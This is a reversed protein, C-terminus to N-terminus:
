TMKRRRHVVRCSTLACESTTPVGHRKGLNFLSPKGEQEGGDGNRCIVTVKVDKVTPLCQHLDLLNFPLSNAVTEERAGSDWKLKFMLSDKHLYMRRIASPYPPLPNMFKQCQWLVQGRVADSAPIIANYHKGDKGLCCDKVSGVEIATSSEKNVVSLHLSNFSIDCPWALDHDFEGPWLRLEATIGKAASSLIRLSTKYGGQIYIPLSEWKSPAKTEFQDYNPLTLTLERYESDLLHPGQNVLARISRLPHLQTTLSSSILQDLSSAIGAMAVTNSAQAMRLERLERGQQQHSKQLEQFATMLHQLHSAPSAQLHMELDQRLLKQSCGYKKMPCEIEENPCRSRHSFLESRKISKAGCHSPCDMPYGPCEALHAVSIIKFYADTMKCYNCTSQRMTCVMKMHYELKGQQVNNSCQKCQVLTFHCDKSHAKIGSLQGEWACGLSRHTCAVKLEEIERKAQKDLIHVYRVERCHPCTLPQSTQEWKKLCDACFEQGCCATLHPDSALSTCVSCIYKQPLDTLFKYSRGAYLFEKSPSTPPTSPTFAIASASNSAMAASYALVITIERSTVGAM